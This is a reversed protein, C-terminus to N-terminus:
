LDKYQNTYLETEYVYKIFIFFILSQESFSFLLFVHILQIRQSFINIHSITQVDALWGPLRGALLGALWNALWGALWGVLWGAM